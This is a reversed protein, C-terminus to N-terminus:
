GDSEKSATYRLTRVETAKTFEKALAPHAEKLAKTDISNRTSGKWTVVKEGNITGVEADGLAAMILSDAEDVNAQEAAITNKSSQRIWLINELHAPLEVVKDPDPKWRKQLSKRTSESGDAPPAERRLVQQWFAEEIAALDAILQDDREVTTIVLEQGGILCAYHVRPLGLVALYHQGQVGYTLPVAGDKWQDAFRTTKIELVGDLATAPGTLRDVNAFMFPYDTNRVMKKFQHVEIGTRKAFEAAIPDELLKGWLQYEKEDAPDPLIGAVKESWLDYPSRWTSVGAVVGADSGGLGGLRLQHWEPSDSGIEDLDAIIEITV